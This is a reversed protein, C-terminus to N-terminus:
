ELPSVTGRYEADDVTATFSDFVGPWAGSHAPGDFSAGFSTDISGHLRVHAEHGGDGFGDLDVNTWTGNEAVQATVTPKKTTKAPKEAPKGSTDSKTPM